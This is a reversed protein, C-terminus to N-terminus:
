RATMPLSESARQTVPEPACNPARERAPQFRVEGGFRAVRVVVLPYAPTGSSCGEVVAYRVLLHETARGDAGAEPVVTVEKVRVYDRTTMLGAAVVLLMDQQFDVRPLPPAIEMDQRVRAWVDNLQSADRVHLEAAARQGTTNNEYVQEFAVPRPQLPPAARRGGPMCAAATCAALLVVTLQRNRTM